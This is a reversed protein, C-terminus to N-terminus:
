SLPNAIKEVGFGAEYLSMCDIEGETIICAKRDGIHNLNYFILEADKVMKFGKRGDRYKINVLEGDRFYPFCICREKQNTQPMWEEKSFIMFKNLTVVSIGRKGFWQEAQEKLEINKVMEPSPKEYNKTERKREFARVNGKWSCNHCCYEGTTINVSLPKDTKNKRGDSCQPCKVKENGGRRTLKIGLDTLRDYYM